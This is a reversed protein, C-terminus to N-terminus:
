REAGARSSRAYYADRLEPVVVHAWRTTENVSYQPIYQTIQTDRLVVDFLSDLVHSEGDIRVALVAHPLNRLTDELVVIRLDEMAFGLELLSVYKIIAFDECDGANRLFELPSAWMDSVGYSEGDSLYPVVKNIFANIENIQALPFRGELSRVKSRWAVMRPSQCRAIDEDCLRYAEREERIRDLVRKWQPITEPRGGQFELSGFLGGKPADAAPAAVVAPMVDGAADQATAPAAALIAALM